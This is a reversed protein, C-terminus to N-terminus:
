YNSFPPFANGTAYINLKKRTKSTNNKLPCISTNKLFQFLLLKLKFYELGAETSMTKINWGDDTKKYCTMKHSNQNPIVM